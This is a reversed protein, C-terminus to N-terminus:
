DPFEGKRILEADISFYKEEKADANHCFLSTRKHKYLLKEPQGPLAPLWVATILVNDCYVFTM